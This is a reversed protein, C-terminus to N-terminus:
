FIREEEFEKEAKATETIHKCFGTGFLDADMRELVPKAKHYNNESQTQCSLKCISRGHHCDTRYKQDYGGVSDELHDDTSTM